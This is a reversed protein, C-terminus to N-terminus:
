VNSGLDDLLQKLPSLNYGAAEGAAIIQASPLQRTEAMALAWATVSRTGSRCWAFVPGQGNSLADAVAQMAEPTPAGQFPAHRYTLGAARALAEAEASSMQDPAEGDPRNNIVQRYGAAAIAPFDEASIQPAVAFDHSVRRLDMRRKGQEVWM